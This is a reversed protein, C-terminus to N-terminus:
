VSGEHKNYLVKSFFCSENELYQEFEEVPVPRNLLYGQYYDCHM